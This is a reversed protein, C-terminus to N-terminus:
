EAGKEDAAPAEADASENTPAEVATEITSNEAEVPAPTEVVTEVVEVAPEEAVPAAAAAAKKKGKTPAAFTPRPKAKTGHPKVATPVEYEEVVVTIHSTKKVIRNGRGM